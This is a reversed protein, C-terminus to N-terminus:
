RSSIWVLLSSSSSSSSSFFDVVQDVVSINYGLVLHFWVCVLHSLGMCVILVYACAKVCFSIDYILGVSVYMCVFLMSVIIVVVAAVLGDWWVLVVLCVVPRFVLGSICVTRPFHRDQSFCFLPYRDYKRFHYLIWVYICVYMCWYFSLCRYMCVYIYLKGVYM